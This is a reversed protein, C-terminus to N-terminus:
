LVAQFELDEHITSVSIEATTARTESDHSLDIKNVSTNEPITELEAQILSAVEDLDVQKGLIQSTQGPKPEIYPMGKGRHLWMESVHTNLHQINRQITEDGNSVLEIDGSSHVTDYTTLDLKIDTAM